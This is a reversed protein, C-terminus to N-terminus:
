QKLCSQPLNASPATLPLLPLKYQRCFLSYKRWASQYVARTGASIGQNILQLVINDVRMLGLQAEQLGTPGAGTPPHESMADTSCSLFLQINNRSIADTATSIPGSVHEALFHFGFSAAYFVLCQLLHM